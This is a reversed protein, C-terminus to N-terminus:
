ADTDGIEYRVEEPISKLRREENLQKMAESRRTREQESIRRKAGVFKCGTRIVECKGSALFKECLIGAIKQGRGPCYKWEM